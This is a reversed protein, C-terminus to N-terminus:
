GIRKNIIYQQGFSFLTTTIWYLALGAPFRWAIFITMVPLVYMMQKGLIKQFDPSDKDGRSSPTQLNKKQAFTIRSYFYQSLGALIALVASPVSLDVIGLFVTNIHTPQGVFSYLGGLNEPTLEMLFVRYLGLLIPIQVIFPLCGAFPNVSNEKYFEMVAKTQAQKDDKHKKQLKKLEPQLNMLKKQSHLGKYSLPYLVLRILVTVAIISIGLDNGPIINFVFVLLNLLPEFITTNFINIVFQM